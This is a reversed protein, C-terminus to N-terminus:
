VKEPPDMYQKEVNHQLHTIFFYVDDGDGTSRQGKSGTGISIYIYM